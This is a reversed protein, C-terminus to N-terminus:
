QYEILYGIINEIDAQKLQLFSPMKARKEWTSALNKTHENLSLNAPANQIFQILEMRNPWKNQLDFLNPALNEEADKGLKHCISCNKKFLMEGSESENKNSETVNKNEDNACSFLFLFTIIPFFQKIM